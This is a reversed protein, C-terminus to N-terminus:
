LPLELCEQLVARSVDDLRIQRMGAADRFALLDYRHGFGKIDSSCRMTREPRNCQCRAQLNIRSAMVGDDLFLAEADVVVLPVVYQIVDFVRRYELIRVPMHLNWVLRPDAYFDVFIVDALAASYTVAPLLRYPLM